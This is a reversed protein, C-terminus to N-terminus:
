VSNVTDFVARMKPSQGIIESFGSAARAQQRLRRNEERLTEYLQANEIAIAAQHAFATLFPVSTETFGSRQLLSDLYIVGITKQKIALPVCAVSQIRNLIISESDRLQEDIQADYAIVSEGGSLVRQVVSNSIRTIDRINDTSMNRAIRPQWEGHEDLLLIFGREAGLTEVAIDIIKELLPDLERLTNIIASIRTLAYLAAAVGPTSLNSAEMM